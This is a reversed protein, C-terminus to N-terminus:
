NNPKRGIYLLHNTSGLYDPHQCLALCLDLWLARDERSLALYRERHAGLIGEQAILMPQELGLGACFDRVYSIPDFRAQTFAQGQWVRDARVCEPYGNQEAIEGKLGEMGTDMYYLMGALLMLFVLWLSGGPRLVALANRIAQLREEEEFLHYLPGMMLVHDFPEDPYAAADLANGHITQLPLAQEQAKQRALALNGQSLDFLTVQCGMAALLLSYRGPGGGIDLVRDGPRIHRAMLAATLDYEIIGEGLRDWEQQPADDYFQAIQQTRDNHM